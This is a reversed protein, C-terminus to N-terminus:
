LEPLPSPQGQSFAAYLTVAEQTLMGISWGDSVIHHMTLLLIHEEAGLQLLKGRLLPGTELNFPLQAEEATLRLRTSEREKDPLNQLDPVRLSGSLHLAFPINYTASGPEMQDVFWLRQQAFSLPARSRDRGRRPIGTRTTALGDKEFLRKLVERRRSSFMAKTKM